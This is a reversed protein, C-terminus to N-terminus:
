AQARGNMEDIAGAEIMQVGAWIEPTVAVGALRLGAEAATYDLGIM